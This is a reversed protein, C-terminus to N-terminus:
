QSGIKTKLLEVAKNRQVDQLPNDGAKVEIDPKIGEKDINKGKPTYWRAITVKAMGGYDLEILEQVSGKGYTTLGVITAVQYDQLAGAVIESASASGENVLVVTPLGKFYASGTAELKDVSVDGRKQEVVVQDKLWLGAVHTSSTLLGGPNNRLDLIVAKVGKEKMEKAAKDILGDTDAGFQALRLYGITNNELYEAKVSSIKIEQRTIEVDVTEGSRLLKLKVKSGAVGRIKLVAEDLTLGATDKGDIEIIIDKPKVGAKSAPYGDIPTVVGPRDSEKGLEAGIGEFSGRMESNLLESQEPSLYNSYQDGAADVLGKKLGDILKTEDLQGDFKNRLTTYVEDVSAYDLKKPLEKNSGVPRTSFHLKGLPVQTGILFAILLGLILLVSSSRKNHTRVSM